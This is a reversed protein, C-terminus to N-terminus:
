NADRQETKLINGNSADVKVDTGNQNDLEVAMTKTGPNAAEVAAQAEAATIGTQGQLAGAEDAEDVQDDEVILIRM